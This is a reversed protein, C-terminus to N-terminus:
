TFIHWFELLCGRCCTRCGRSCISSLDSRISEGKAGLTEDTGLEFSGDNGTQTQALQKPDGSSAAWLTVSSNAVAGGGARVRGDIRLAADAPSCAWGLVGCTALIALIRAKYNRPM